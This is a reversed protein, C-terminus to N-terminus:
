NGRVYMRLITAKEEETKIKERLHRGVASGGMQDAIRRTAELKTECESLQKRMRRKESPKLKM